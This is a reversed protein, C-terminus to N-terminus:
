QILHGLAFSSSFSGSFFSFFGLLNKWIFFFNLFCKKKFFIYHLKRRTKKKQNFWSLSVFFQLVSWRVTSKKTSWLRYIKDENNNLTVILHILTWFTQKNTQKETNRNSLLWNEHWHWIVSLDCVCSYSIRMSKKKQNEIFIAVNKKRKSQIIWPSFIQFRSFREILRDISQNIKYLRTAWEQNAIFKLFFLFKRENLKRTRSQITM